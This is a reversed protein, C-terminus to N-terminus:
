LQTSVEVIMKNREDRLATIRRDKKELAEKMKVVWQKKREAIRCLCACLRTGFMCTPKIRLLLCLCCKQITSHAAATLTIAYKTSAEPSKWNIGTLLQKTKTL